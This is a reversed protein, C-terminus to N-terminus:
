SNQWSLQIYFLWSCVEPMKLQFVKPILLLLCLSALILCIQNRSYSLEAKKMSMTFYELQKKPKSHPRRQHPLQRIPLSNAHIVSRYKLPAWSETLM